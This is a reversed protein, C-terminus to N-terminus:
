SHTFWTAKIDRICQKMRALDVIWRGWARPRHRCKESAATPRVMTGPFEVGAAGPTVEDRTFFAVIDHMEAGAIINEIAPLAVIDAEETGAVVRHTATATVVLGVKAIAIVAEIPFSKAAVVGDFALSANSM